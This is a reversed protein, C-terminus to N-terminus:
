CVAQGDMQAVVFEGPQEPQRLPYWDLIQQLSCLWPYPDEPFAGAASRARIVM